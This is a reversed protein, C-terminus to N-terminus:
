RYASIRVNELKKKMEQAKEIRKGRHTSQKFEVIVLMVAKLIKLNVTFHSSKQRKM